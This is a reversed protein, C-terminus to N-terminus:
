CILLEGIVENKKWVSSLLTEVDSRSIFVLFFNFVGDVGASLVVIVVVVM